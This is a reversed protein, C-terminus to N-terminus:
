QQRTGEPLSGFYVEVENIKNGVIAFFETNRFKAGVKPELEYRVFAENGDEFLKRIHLTHIKDRDPWCTEFYETKSIHDDRPSIFTFDDSM